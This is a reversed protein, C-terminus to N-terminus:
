SMALKVAEEAHIGTTDYLLVATDKQSILLTIETCGMIVAEAGQKHLKDVISLYQARSSEKMGENISKYYLATSEWSMGGLLGITKM